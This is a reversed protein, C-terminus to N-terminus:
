KVGGDYPKYIVPDGSSYSQGQMGLNQYQGINSYPNCNRPQTNYQYKSNSILREVDERKCYEDYAANFLNGLGELDFGMRCSIGMRKNPMADRAMQHIEDIAAKANREIGELWSPYKGEFWNIDEDTM